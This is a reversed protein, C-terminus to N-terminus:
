EFIFKFFKFLKIFRGFRKPNQYLRWISELGMKQIFVPARKEIGAVMEFTGGVGMALRVGIKELFDRNDEIWFEQKPPGFAVFLVDPSFDKLIGLIKENHEKPFPYPSYPPSYGDIILKPFMERLRKQSLKNSIELGGLLFVKLKKQSAKKCIDFILDSGSLKEIKVKKKRAKLKLFLYPIQGDITTINKNLIGMFKKNQNALVILEANVPIVVNLKKSDLSSLIFNKTLGNFNINFAKIYFTDGKM